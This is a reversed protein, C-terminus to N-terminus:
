FMDRIQDLGACLSILKDINWGPFCGVWYLSDESFGLLELKNYFVRTMDGNKQLAAVPTSSQRGNEMIYFEVFDFETTKLFQTIEDKTELRGRDENTSKINYAM